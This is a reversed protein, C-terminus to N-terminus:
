QRGTRTRGSHVLPHPSPQSPPNTPAKPHPFGRNNRVPLLVGVRAQGPKKLDVAADPAHKKAEQEARLRAYFDGM